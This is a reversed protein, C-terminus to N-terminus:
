WLPDAPFPLPAGFATRSLTGVGATLLALRPEPFSVQPGALGPQPSGTPNPNQHPPM